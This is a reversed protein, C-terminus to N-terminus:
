GQIQGYILVAILAEQASLHHITDRVAPVKDTGMCQTIRCALALMLQIKARYRVSSQHNSLAHAPTDFYIGRSWAVDDLTFIREWPVKVEQCVVVCDSEDFHTSLPNEFSGQGYFAYAKRSWLSLGPTNVPLVCTISATKQDPALPLINGIWLEHAFAAGPALRKMGNVLVGGDYDGVVRM